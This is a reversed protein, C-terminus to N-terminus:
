QNKDGPLETKATIYLVVCWALQWIGFVFSPVTFMGLVSLLAGLGLGAGMAYLEINKFRAVLREYKKSLLIINIANIKDGFCVVGASINRYIMDEDDGLSYKKIVRMCDSGASLIQLLENSVNPDSTYILPIIGEEKLTPLLMTFEESFSYRIFFKAYIAGDEAAYMVKTTDIGSDIRVSSDPIAIGHRRMYEESGAAIRHGEVNGSIGNDEIVIGTAPSYRVRRDLANEFIYKLPGGAVEFLSCMQQMAKEMSNSDGYLMFRKLNVDDVGFIETDKFAVVDVESFEAYSTEGVVTSEDKLATAQAIGYPLKHTIVSLAPCGLLFVLAFAAFASVTGGGVFFCVLSVVLATGLSIALIKLTQASRESSKQTRKFFDTIFGARFIRATRSKYEDVLGDLAMNEEPLERTLKRDLIRKEGIKSIVKFATFDGRTRMYAGLVTVLVLVAFVFGLLIM